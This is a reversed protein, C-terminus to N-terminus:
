QALKQKRGPGYKKLAADADEETYYDRTPGSDLFVRWEKKRTGPAASYVGVMGRKGCPKCEAM